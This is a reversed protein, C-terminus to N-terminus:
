TGNWDDKGKEFPKLYEAASRSMERSFDSNYKFIASRACGNRMRGQRRRIAWCPACNTQGCAATATKMCWFSPRAAARSQGRLQGSAPRGFVLMAAPVVYEPFTCCPATSNATKWFIGSIAPRHGPEAGGDRREAGCHLRGGRCAFPRPAPGARRVDAHPFPTWDGRATQVSFSCWPPRQCHLAPPRM